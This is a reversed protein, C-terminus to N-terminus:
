QHHHGRDPQCGRGKCTGGCRLCRGAVRQVALQPPEPLDVGLLGPGVRCAHVGDHRHDVGADVEGLRIQLALDERTGGEGSARTGTWASLPVEAARVPDVVAILVTRVHGPGDRRAPAVTDTHDPHCRVRLDQRDLHELVARAGALVDGGADAPGCGVAGVHDVHSEARHGTTLDQGDRADVRGHPVRDGVCPGSPNQRDGGGAVGRGGQAVVRREVTLCDADAGRVDTTQVAPVGLQRVLQVLLRHRCRSSGAQRRETERPAAVLVDPRRHGCPRARGRTAPPVVVRIGSGGHRRGVNGAHCRQQEGPGGTSPTSLAIRVM